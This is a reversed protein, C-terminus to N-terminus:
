KELRMVRCPCVTGSVTEQWYLYDADATLAYVATPRIAIATSGSADPLNSRVINGGTGTTTYLHQADNLLLYSWGGLTEFSGGALPIRALGSRATWYLWDGVILLESPMQQGSAVSVAGGGSLSAKMVNGADPLTWYVTTADAAAMGPRGTNAILMASGGTKAVRQLAVTDWFILSTGSQALVTFNGGALVIRSTGGALPAAVIGDTGSAYVSTGDLVYDATSLNSVVVMANSGDTQAKVVSRTEYDYWYFAGGAIRLNGYDAGSFLETPECMGDVCASGGCSRGCAGCHNSSSKLDYCTGGCPNECTCAGNACIPTLGSCTADVQVDLLDLGCRGVQDIAVCRTESPTADICWPQLISACEGARAGAATQCRQSDLCRDHTQWSQGDCRLRQQSAHGDCGILNLQSCAGGLQAIALEGPPWSPTSPAVMSDTAAGDTMAPTSGGGGDLPLAATGGMGGQASSTTGATPPLGTLGPTQSPDNQPPTGSSQCTGDNCIMGPPCSQEPGCESQDNRLPTCSAAWSAVGLLLLAMMARLSHGARSSVAHASVPSRLLM